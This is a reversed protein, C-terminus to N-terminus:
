AGRVSAPAAGRTAAPIAATAAPGQPDHQCPPDQLAKHLVLPAAGASTDPYYRYWFQYVFCRGPDVQIDRYNINGLGTHSWLQAAKATAATFLLLLLRASLSLITKAQIKQFHSNLSGLHGLRKLFWEFIFLHIPSGIM